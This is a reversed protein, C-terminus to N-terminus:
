RERLGAVWAEVEPILRMLDADFTGELAGDAGLTVRLGLLCYVQRKLIDLTASPTDQTSRLAAEIRRM